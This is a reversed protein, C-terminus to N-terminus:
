PLLYRYASVRKTKLEESSVKVLCVKGTSAPRINNVDVNGDKRHSYPANLKGLGMKSM